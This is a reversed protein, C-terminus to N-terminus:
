RIHDVLGIELADAAGFPAGRRFQDQVWEPTATSNDAAVAVRSAVAAAATAEIGADFRALHTLDGATALPTGTRRDLQLGISASRGIRRSGKAGTVVVGASGHARGLVDITFPARLLDLTDVLAMADGLPGGPSNVVITIPDSSLGDLYMLLSCSEAVTGSELPGAIMVRRQGLGLEDPSRSDM